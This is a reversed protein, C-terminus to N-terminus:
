RQSSLDATTPLTSEGENIVDFAYLDPGYRGLVADIHEKLVAKLEHSTTINTVYDPSRTLGTGLRSARRSIGCLTTDGSSRLRRKRSPSSRRM